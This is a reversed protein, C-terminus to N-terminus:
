AGSQLDTFAPEIGVRAEMGGELYRWQRGAFYSFAQLVLTKENTTNWLLRPFDM